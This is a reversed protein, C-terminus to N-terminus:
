PPPDITVPFLFIGFKRGLHHIGEKMENMKEKLNEILKIKVIEVINVVDTNDSLLDKLQVDYNKQLELWDTYWYIKKNVIEQCLINPYRTNEMKMCSNKYNLHLGLTYVFLPLFKTELYLVFDPTYRPIRLIKKIFGKQCVELANVWRGGWVQASYCIISRAVANFIDM